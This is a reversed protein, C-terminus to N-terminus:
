GGYARAHARLRVLGHQLWGGSRLYPTRSHLKSISQSRSRDRGVRRRVDEAVRSKGCGGQADGARREDQPGDVGSREIGQATRSLSEACESRQQAREPESANA